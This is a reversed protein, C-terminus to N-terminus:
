RRLKRRSVMFYGNDSITVKRGQENHEFGKLYFSWVGPGSKKHFILVPQDEYSTLRIPKVNLSHPDGVFALVKTGKPIVYFLTKDAANAKIMGFVILYLVACLVLIIKKM